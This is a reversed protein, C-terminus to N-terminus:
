TSIIQVNQKPENYIHLNPQALNKQPQLPTDATFQVLSTSPQSQLVQKMRKVNVKFKRRNIDINFVRDNLSEIVKHPM